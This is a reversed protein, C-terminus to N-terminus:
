FVMKLGNHRGFVEEFNPFFTKIIATQIAQDAKMMDRSHLM